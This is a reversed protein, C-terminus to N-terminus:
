AHVHDLADEHDFTVFEIYLDLLANHTNGAGNRGPSIGSEELLQNPPELTHNPDFAVEFPTNIVGNRGSVGGTMHCSVNAVGASQQSIRGNSRKDRRGDGKMSPVFTQDRANCAGLGLPVYVDHHHCKIVEHPLWGLTPSVVSGTAAGFAREEERGALFCRQGLCALDM